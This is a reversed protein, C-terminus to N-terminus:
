VLLSVALNSEGPPPPLRHAKELELQVGQAVDLFMRGLQAEKQSLVADRALREVPNPLRLIFLAESARPHSIQNLQSRRHPSVASLPAGPPCRRSAPECGQAGDPGKRERSTWAINGHAQKVLTEARTHAAFPSLTRM